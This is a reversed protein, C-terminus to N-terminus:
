FITMTTYLPTNGFSLRTAPHLNDESRTTRWRDLIHGLPPRYLNALFFYLNHRQHSVLRPWSYHAVISLVSNQNRFILDIGLKVVIKLHV